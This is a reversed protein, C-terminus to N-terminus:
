KEEYMEEKSKRYLYLLESMMMATAGWLPVEPHIDWYPVTFPTDRLIWTDKILRDSHALDDLSVTFAEAVEHEDPYFVPKRSVYGVVPQVDNNSKHVYLHTLRGVIKVQEPELGIEEHAERLATQEPTEDAERKGGPFSIQGGHHKIAQSRLTLVIHPTNQRLEPEEEIGPPPCLLVLVSSNRTFSNGEAAMKRMQSPNEDPLPAMELQAQLGPLPGQLKSYLYNIFPHFM